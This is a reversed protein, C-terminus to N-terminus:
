NANWRVEIQAYFNRGRSPLNNVSLHTHFLRDALNEIGGQLSMWSTADWRARLDATVWGSTQDEIALTRATRTQRTAGHLTVEAMVDTARYVIRVHATLPQIFPLPEQLTTSQGYMYEATIYTRWREGIVISGQLTVGGLIANGVNTISRFQQTTDGPMGGSEIPISGIHDSLFSVFPRLSLSSPADFATTNVEWVADLQWATEPRVSPTGIMISNTAVDYLYYGFLEQHTPLRQARAMTLSFTSRAADDDDSDPEYRLTTSLTGAAGNDITTGPPQYSLLVARWTDDLLSRFSLDVRGALRWSLDDTPRFEHDAAIGINGVSANAISVLYMDSVTTDLPTMTMDAFARLWYLDAIVHSVSSASARTFTAHSGLTTTTGYMPMRMGPMIPRDNVEEDSRDADDMWHLVTNAYLRTTLNTFGAISVPSSARLSGFHMITQRTDMILSPFGVDQSFDGIYAVDLTTAGLQQTLDFGINQKAFGSGEVRTHDGAMFDNAARLTGSLRVATSSGFSHNGVAHLARQGSVGDYSVRARTFTEELAATPRQMNVGGGLVQGNSLDSTGESVTMAALNDIEIYSTAPDMHDTCASFLKMGDITVAIQGGGMGRVLAEAAFNARRVLSIAGGEAMLDDTSRLTRLCHATAACRERDDEVMITERATVVRTTDEEAAFAFSSSLMLTTLIISASRM